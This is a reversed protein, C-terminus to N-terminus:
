TVRASGYTSFSKVMYKLLNAINHRLWTYSDESHTGSKYCWKIQTEPNINKDVALKLFRGKSDSLVMPQWIVVSSSQSVDSSTLANSKNICKILINDSM